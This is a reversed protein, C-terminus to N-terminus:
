DSLCPSSNPTAITPPEDYAYLTGTIKRGDILELSITKVPNKPLSAEVRSGIGLWRVKQYGATKTTNNWDLSSSGKLFHKGDLNSFRLSGHTVYTIMKGDPTTIELKAPSM